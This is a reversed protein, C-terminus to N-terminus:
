DERSEGEAEARDTIKCICLGVDGEDSIFTEGTGGCDICETNGGDWLIKDLKDFVTRPRVIVEMDMFGTVIINM